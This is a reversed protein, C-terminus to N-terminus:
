LSVPASATSTNSRHRTAGLLTMERLASHKRLKIVIAQHHHGDDMLIAVIRQEDVGTKEVLQKLSLQKEHCLTTVTKHENFTGKSDM